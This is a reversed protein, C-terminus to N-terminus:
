PSPIGHGLEYWNYFNETITEGNTITVTRSQTNGPYDQDLVYGTRLEEEITYTGDKLGTFEYHGNADTAVTKTYTVGSCETGTLTIEWGYPYLITEKVWNPDGSCYSVYVEGEIMGTPCSVQPCIPQRFMWRFWFMFRNSFCYNTPRYSRRGTYCSNGYNRNCAFVTGVSLSLVFFALLFVLIITKTKM